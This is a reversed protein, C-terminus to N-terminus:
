PKTCPPSGPGPARFPSCTALGGARGNPAMWGTHLRDREFWAEGVGPDIEAGGVKQCVAHAMQYQGTQVLEDGEFALLLLPPAAAGGRESLEAAAAADLLRAVAPRADTRYIL